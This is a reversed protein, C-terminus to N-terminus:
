LPIASLASLETKTLIKSEINKFLNLSQKYVTGRLLLESKFRIM